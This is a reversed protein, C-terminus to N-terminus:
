MVSILGIRVPSLKDCVYESFDPISYKEYDGSVIPLICVSKFSHKSLQFWLKGGHLKMTHFATYLSSHKRNISNKIFEWLFPSNGKISILIQSRAIRLNVHVRGNECAATSILNLVADRIHPPCCATEVPYDPLSLTVRCNKFSLLLDCACCIELILMDVRCRSLSIKDCECIIINQLKRLKKLCKTEIKKLEKAENDSCKNKKLYIENILIQLSERINTENELNLPLKELENQIKLLRKLM